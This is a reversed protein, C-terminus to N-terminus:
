KEGPAQSRQLALPSPQSRSIEEVFYVLDFSEIPVLLANSDQAKWEREQHLWRSAASNQEVERLNVLFFPAGVEALAGDMVAESVSEFLREGPPLDPPYSGTGFTGGITIYADGLEASLEVGMPNLVGELLGPMRFSSKAVHLNHAWLIANEGPIEKDLISLTMQAMGHERIAGGTELGGSSFFDNGVKGNTALMLTREYKEVSSLVILQQRNEKVLEILEEYNAALERRREDPLAGYREWTSPWFDGRQLDLGLAPEDLRIEVGASKFSRLVDRVGPAPATIDVGFIRVQQGPELDQNFQRIWQILELMEETDWLYWGALQNMLGRLDGEGSTVYRNLSEAHPFSEELILARFGLDEILYRVLLGKLLLQERTDHRSEGLGVLHAAGLTERLPELDTTPATTELNEIAVAHDSVWEIFAQTEPPREVTKRSQQACGCVCLVCAALAINLRM